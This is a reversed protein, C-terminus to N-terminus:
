ATTSPSGNEGHEGLLTRIQQEIPPIDAYQEDLLKYARQLYLGALRPGTADSRLAADVLQNTRYKEPLGRAIRRMSDAVSDLLHTDHGDIAYRAQGTLRALEGLRDREPLVEALVDDVNLDDLPTESRASPESVDPWRQMYSGYLQAYEQCAEAAFTMRQSDDNLYLPGIDCLDDGRREALQRLGALGQVDELMPPIPVASLASADQLGELPVQGSLIPPLYKGLSFQIPLVVCYTALIHDPQNGARAFLLAHGRPAQPDGLEFHLQM